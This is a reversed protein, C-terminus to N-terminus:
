SYAAELPIRKARASTGKLALFIKSSGSNFLATFAKLYTIKTYIAFRKCKRLFEIHEVYEDKIRFYSDDKDHIKTGTYISMM